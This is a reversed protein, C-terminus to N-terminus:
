LIPLYIKQLIEEYEEKSNSNITIGGGSRFYKQGKDSEEIYRILVASDFIKGDFYGFVGTYFGRPEKEAERIMKLTSEKPAGSISGAPLMSFIIDAMQTHYNANLVGRIESSTQLIDKSNTKIREIYRFKDVQINSAVIGLDNRLLDVITYHEALEKENNLLNWAANEIKADITGKMPNTSIYGQEIKVFREPSFCVFKKPVYIKYLSKSLLFIDQLSLTSEIATKVTLNALFSNGRKLGQMMKDFKQEYEAFPIPSIKLENNYNQPAQININNGLPCDFLIEHQELPNTIFIGNQLEFDVAFLFTKQNSLAKNILQKLTEINLYEM